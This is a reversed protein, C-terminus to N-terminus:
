KNLASELYHDHIKKDRNTDAKLYQLAINTYIKGKSSDSSFELKKQLSDVRYLTLNLKQKLSDAKEFAFANTAFLLPLLIFFLIHKLMLPMDALKISIIPM